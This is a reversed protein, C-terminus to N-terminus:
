FCDGRARAEGLVELSTTWSIRFQLISAWQVHARLHQQKDACLPDWVRLLDKLYDFMKIKIFDLKM